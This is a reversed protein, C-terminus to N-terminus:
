LIEKGDWAAIEILPALATRTGESDAAAAAAIRRLADALDLGELVSELLQADAEHLKLTRWTRPRGGTYRNATRNGTNTRQPVNSM